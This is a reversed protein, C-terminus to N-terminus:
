CKCGKQKKEGEGKQGKELPIRQLKFNLDWGRQETSISAIRRGPSSSSQMVDEAWPWGCSAGGRANLFLKGMSFTRGWWYYNSCNIGLLVIIPVMGERVGPDCGPGVSMLPLISMGRTHKVGAKM